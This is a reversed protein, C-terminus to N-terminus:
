THTWFWRCVCQYLDYTVDAYQACLELDVVSVHFSPSFNDFLHYSFRCYCIRYPWM